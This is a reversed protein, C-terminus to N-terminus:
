EDETRLRTRAPRHRSHVPACQVPDCQPYHVPAVYVGRQIVRGRM